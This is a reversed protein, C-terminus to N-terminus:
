IGLQSAIAQVFDSPGRSRWTDWQDFYGPGVICHLEARPRSVAVFFTRRQEALEKGTPPGWPKQGPIPVDAPVLGNILGPLIVTDFERGKSTHYNTLVVKGALRVGAALDMLSLSANRTTVALEKLAVKERAEPHRRAIVDLELANIVRALWPFAVGESGDPLQTDLTRLLCTGHSGANPITVHHGSTM